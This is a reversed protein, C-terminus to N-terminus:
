GGGVKRQRVVEFMLVAGAAAANLSESRGPMPICVQEHALQRATASAGDAEGGIILALPQKFDAQWCSTSAEMEALFVQIGSTRTKITDWDMFAIPLRFHAGM